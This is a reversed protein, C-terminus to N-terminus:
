PKLIFKETFYNKPSLMWIDNEDYCSIFMSDLSISVSKRSSRRSIEYKRTKIHCIQVSIWIFFFNKYIFIFIFHITVALLGLGKQSLFVRCFPKFRRFYNKLSIILYNAALLEHWNACFFLGSIQGFIQSKKLNSHTM